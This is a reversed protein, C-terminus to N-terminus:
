QVPVNERSLIGSGPDSGYSGTRIDRGDYFLSCLTTEDETMGPRWVEVALTIREPESPDYATMTFHWVSRYEPDLVSWAFWESDMIADIFAEKLADDVGVSDEAGYVLAAIEERPIDTFLRRGTEALVMGGMDYTTMRYYACTYDEGLPSHCLLEADGTSFLKLKWKDPYTELFDEEKEMWQALSELVRAEFRDANELTLLKRYVASDRITPEDPKRDQISIGNYFLSCLTYDDIERDGSNWVRVFLTPYEAGGEDLPANAFYWETRVDPGMTSQSFWDSYLIFDVFAEKLERDVGVSDEAGHVKAAIEERSIDTFGMWSAGGSSVAGEDWGVFCYTRQSDKTLPGYCELTIRGPVYQQLMWGDTYTDLFGEQTDIWRAFAELVAPDFRDANYLALLKQYAPSDEVPPQTQEPESTQPPLTTQQGTPPTSEPVTPSPNFTEVTSQQPLTEEASGGRSFLLACLAVVCCIAAGLAAGIIWPPLTKKTEEAELIWRDRINGIGRLLGAADTGASKQGSLVDRLESRLLKLTGRVDDASSGCRRSIEEVSCLYWYRLVFIKRERASLELLVDDMMRRLERAPLPEGAAEEQGPVCRELERLARDYEGSAPARDVALNRTLRLLYVKLNKPEKPPITEWARFVAERVAAEAAVPDGLIREAVARCAQGYQHRAQDPATQDRNLFLEMLQYDDM